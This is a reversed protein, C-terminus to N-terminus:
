GVVIVSSLYAVFPSLRALAITLLCASVLLLARSALIARRSPRSRDAFRAIMFCGSALLVLPFFQYHPRDWLQQLYVYLLPAHALLLVGFPLWTALPIRDPAANPDPDSPM